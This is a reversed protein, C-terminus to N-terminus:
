SFTILVIITPLGVRWHDVSASTLSAILSPPRVSEMLRASFYAGGAYQVTDRPQAARMTSHIDNLFIM